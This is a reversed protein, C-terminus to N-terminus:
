LHPWGATMIKITVLLAVFVGTSIMSAIFEIPWATRSPRASHKGPTM